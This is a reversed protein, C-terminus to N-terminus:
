ESLCGLVLGNFRVEKTLDRLGRREGINFFAGDGILFGKKGSFDFSIEIIHDVINEEVKQCEENQTAQFLKQAFIACVPTKFRDEILGNVVKKEFLDEAFDLYDKNGTARTLALSSVGWNCFDSPKFLEERETYLQATKGFYYKAKALNNKSGKWLYLTALDFPYAIFKSMRDIDEELLFGEFIQKKNLVNKLDLGATGNQNKGFLSDNLEENKVLERLGQSSSYSGRLCIAEIKGKQEQSFLDSEWLEFMLGCNWFDNQITPVKNKDAYFDIDRLLAQFIDNNPNAQYYKFRGWIIPPIFHASTGSPTIQDCNGDIGNCIKSIYYVGKEDRQEDLWGLVKGAIELNSMQSTASTVEDSSIQSEEAPQKRFIDILDGTGKKLFFFYYVGEAVLFLVILGLVVALVGSSSFKSKKQSALPTSPAQKGESTTEM